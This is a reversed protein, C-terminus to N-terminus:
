QVREQRRRSLEDLTRVSHGVLSDVYADSELAAHAPLPGVAVCRVRAARAARCGAVGDEIALATNPSVDAGRQRALRALALAYSAPSPKADFVDDATVVVTFLHSIGALRLMADADDRGARTVATLRVSVSADELFSRAGDRMAAGGMALRAAFARDARLTILDALVADGGEIRCAVVTRVGASTPWGDVVDADFSADLGHAGLADALAARRLERTDFLVGELEVLVVDVM